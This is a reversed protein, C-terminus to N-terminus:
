EEPSTLAERWFEPVAEIAAQYTAELPVPVYEATTLFLPLTPLPDGVAVPEVFAEAGADAIYSACTLPQAKDFRFVGDDDEGWVLPHIGEPDRTTPPFLDVLALHIGAALLDRAKRVLDALAGRGSKNGPSLIELVAVVRHESVHRVTVAKKKSAYWQKEDKIRFRVQPPSDALNVGAASRQTWEKRPKTGQFARQLAFVDPGVGGGIQEALAYHDTGSLNRNLARNVESIWGHHFDHFIGASLRTWDHVPVTQEEVTGSTRRSRDKDTLKCWRFL